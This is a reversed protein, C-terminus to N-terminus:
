SATQNQIDSNLQEIRQTVAKILTTLYGTKQVGGWRLSPDLFIAEYLSILNKQIVKTNIAITSLSTTLIFLKNGFISTM